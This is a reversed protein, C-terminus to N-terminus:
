ERGGRRAGEECCGAVVLEQGGVALDVQQGGVLAGLLVCLGEALRLSPVQHAVPRSGLLAHHLLLEYRVAVQQRGEMTRVM